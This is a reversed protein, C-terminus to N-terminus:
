VRKFKSLVSEKQKKLMSGGNTIEDQIKKAEMAMTELQKRKADDEQRLGAEIEKSEDLQSVIKYLDVVRIEVAKVSSPTMKSVGSLPKAQVETPASVMKPADKVKMGAHASATLLVVALTVISKKYNKIM